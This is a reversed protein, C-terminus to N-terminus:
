ADWAQRSRLGGGEGRVRFGLGELKSQRNHFVAFVNIVLPWWMRFGCFTSPGLEDFVRHMTAVGLDKFKSWGQLM